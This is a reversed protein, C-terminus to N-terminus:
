LSEDVGDTGSEVVAASESEDSTPNLIVDPTITISASLPNTDLRDGATTLGTAYADITLSYPPEPLSAKNLNLWSMIEPPVVFATVSKSNPIDDFAGPLSGGASGDGDVPAPGAPGLVAGIAVTTDPPQNSSGEVYFSLFVRQLRIGQGLLNNQFGYTGQVAGTSTEDETTTSLPVSNSEPELSYLTFSVGQDNNSASGCGFMGAALLAVVLAKALNGSIRRM